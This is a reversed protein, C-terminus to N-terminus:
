KEIIEWKKENCIKRLHNDPCVAVPKGVAELLKIDTVSDCFAISSNYDVDHNSLLDYIIDIKNSGKIELIRKEIDYLGNEKFYLNSGIIKDFPLENLSLLLLDNFAGSILVTYYGRAKLRVVEDTISNRLNKKLAISAGKFFKMIEDRTMGDFLSCFEVYALNRLRDKVELSPKGLKYFIFQPLVKLMIKQTKRRPYGLKNWQKILFPIVDKEYLTGDFDFIALKM